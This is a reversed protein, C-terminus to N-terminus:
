EVLVTATVAKRATCSSIIVYIKTGGMTEGGQHPVLRGGHPEHLVMAERCGFSLRASRSHCWYHVLEAKGWDTGTKM